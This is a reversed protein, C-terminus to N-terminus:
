PDVGDRYLDTLNVRLAKALLIAESDKICRSQCEIKAYTGRSINWGLLNCQAAVQHQKLNQSQRIKRVQPGISNKIERDQPDIVDM